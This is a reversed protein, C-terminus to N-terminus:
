QFKLKFGGGLSPMVFLLGLLRWLSRKFASNSVNALRSGNSALMKDLSSLSDM